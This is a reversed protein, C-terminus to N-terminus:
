SCFRLSLISSAKWSQQLEAFELLCVVFGYDMKFCLVVQLTIYSLITLTAVVLFYAYSRFFGWDKWIIKTASSLHVTYMLIVAFM